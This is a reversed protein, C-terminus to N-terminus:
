KRALNKRIESNEAIKGNEVLRVIKEIKTIVNELRYRAYNFNETEKRILSKM